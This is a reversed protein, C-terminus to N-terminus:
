LNVWMSTKGGDKVVEHVVNDADADDEYENKEDLNRNETTACKRQIEIKAAGPVGTKM